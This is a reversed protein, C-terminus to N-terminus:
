GRIFRGSNGCGKLYPKLLADVVAFKAQKGTQAGTYSVSIPGISEASVAGEAPDYDSWLMTGHTVRLTLESLADLVAQPIEPWLDRPFADSGIANGKFEYATNLYQEAIAISGDISVSTGQLADIKVLYELFQEPTLM